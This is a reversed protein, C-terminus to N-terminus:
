WSAEFAASPIARDTIPLHYWAMQRERVKRGLEAVRLAELEAQEVLTLVVVAGWNRVVDLDSDLDRAWGDQVTPRVQKGPCFTIGIRGQGPAAQVEAIRLPHTCSNRM